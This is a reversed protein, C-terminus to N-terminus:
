REDWVGANQEMSKFGVREEFETMEVEFLIQKWQKLDNELQAIEQSDTANALNRKVENIRFKIQFSSM